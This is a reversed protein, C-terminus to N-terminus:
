KGGASAAGSSHSPAGYQALKKKCHMFLKRYIRYRLPMGAAAKGRGEGVAVPAIKGTLKVKDLFDWECTTQVFDYSHLARKMHRIFIRDGREEWDRDEPAEFALSYLTYETGPHVADLAKKFEALHERPFPGEPAVVIGLVNESRALFDYMREIRRRYRAAIGDFYAKGDKAFIDYRFDHYFGMAQKGDWVRVEMPDTPPPYNYKPDMPGMNEYQCWGDFNTRMMRAMTDLFGEHTEGRVWDFPMSALRLNRRTMQMAGACSAGFSMCFDYSRNDVM